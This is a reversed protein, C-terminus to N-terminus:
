VYSNTVHCCDYFSRAPVVCASPGSLSLAYNYWGGLWWAINVLATQDTQPYAAPRHFLTCTYHMEVSIVMDHRSLFM